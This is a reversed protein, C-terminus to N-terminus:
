KKLNQTQSLSRLGAAAMNRQEQRIEIGALALVRVFGDVTACSDELNELQVLRMRGASTQTWMHLKEAVKQLKNQCAGSGIVVFTYDIDAIDVPSLRLVDDIRDLGKHTFIKGFCREAVAEFRSDMVLACMGSM